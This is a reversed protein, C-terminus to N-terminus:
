EPPNGWSGTSTGLLFGARIAEAIGNIERADGIVHTEIGAKVADGLPFEVPESGLAIVVMEAPALKSTKFFNLPM